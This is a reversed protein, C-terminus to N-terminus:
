LDLDTREGPFLTVKTWGSWSQPAPNNPDRDHRYCIQEGERAELRETKNKIMVLEQTRAYGEGRNDCDSSKTFVVEVHV